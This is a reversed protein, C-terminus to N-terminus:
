PMGDIGFFPPGFWGIANSLFRAMDYGAEVNFQVM